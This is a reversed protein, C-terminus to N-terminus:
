KARDELLEKAKRVYSATMRLPRTLRWSLSAELDRYLRYFHEEERERAREQHLQEWLRARERRLEAVCEEAAIARSRWDIDTDPASQSM